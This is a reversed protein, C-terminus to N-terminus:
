QKWNINSELNNCKANLATYRLFRHTVTYNDDNFTCSFPLPDHHIITLMNSRRDLSRSETNRQKGTEKEKQIDSSIDLYM